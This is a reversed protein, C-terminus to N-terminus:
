AGAYIPRPSPAEESGLRRAPRCRRAAAVVLVGFGLPGRSRSLNQQADELLALKVVPEISSSIDWADTGRGAESDSSLATWHRTCSQESKPPLRVSLEEAQKARGAKARRRASSATRM